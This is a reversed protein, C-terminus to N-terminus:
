GALVRGPGYAYLALTCLVYLGAVLACMFRLEWGRQRVDLGAHSYRWGFVYLLSLTPCLMFYGLVAIPDAGLSLRTSAMLSAALWLAYVTVGGGVAHLAKMRRGREPQELKRALPEQVATFVAALAPVLLLVALLAYHGLTPRAPFVWLPALRWGAVTSLLLFSGGFVMVVCLNFASLLGVFGHMPLSARARMVAVLWYSLYPALGWLATALGYRAGEWLAAEFPAAAAEAPAQLWLVLRGCLWAAALTLGAPLLAQQWLAKASVAADGPQPAVADLRKHAVALARVLVALGSDFAPERAFVAQSLAFDRIPEPLAQPDPMDTRGVLVPYVMKKLRLATAIEWVLEDSEVKGGGELLLRMFDDGVIVVVGTCAKLWEELHVDWREGPPIERDILVTDEGFRAQLSMRVRHAAHLSDHRRYSIFLKM